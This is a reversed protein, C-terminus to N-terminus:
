DFPSTEVALNMTQRAYSAREGDDHIHSGGGHYAQLGDFRLGPM